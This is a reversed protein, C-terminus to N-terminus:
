RPFFADFQTVLCVFMILVKRLQLTQKKVRTEHDTVLQNEFRLRSERDSQNVNFLDSIM